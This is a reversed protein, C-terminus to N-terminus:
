FTNLFIIYIQHTYKIQLVLYLILNFYLLIIFYFKIWCNAIRILYHELFILETISYKTKNEVIKSLNNQSFINKHYSQIIHLSYFCTQINQHHFHYSTNKFFLKLQLHRTLIMKKYNTLICYSTFNKFIIIILKYKLFIYINNRLFIFILKM